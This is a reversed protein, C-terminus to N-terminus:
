EYDRLAVGVPFIPIGGDSLNQYRVTLMTKSAVIQDLDKWLSQKYEYSGKPVVGFIKGNKARVEFTVCGEFITGKGTYGGVVQFEEDIFEKYKQLHKSRHKFSYGGCKKNRIIIGEKGDAVFVDHWKKVEEKSTVEHTEVIKVKSDTPLSISRLRELRKEFDLKADGIDYVRFELKLSEPRVKKVASMTKQFSLTDSYLEGDFIENLKMVKLLQPTLHNLTSFKKGKRSTYEVETDSIKEAFCRCGDYKEQAYAPYVIHHSSKEFPQALMPLKVIKIDEVSDVYGEDRKKNMKSNGESVAQEFPTTENSRGINKGKRVIKDTPTKKGDQLGSTTRLTATNDPHLIVEAGWTKVRGKSDKAYLTPFIKNM